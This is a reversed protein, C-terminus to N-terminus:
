WRSASCRASSAAARGASRRSRASSACAGRSRPCPSCAPWRSPPSSRRSRWGSAWAHRGPELREVLSGSVQDALDQATTVTAKPLTAKIEKKVAAISEASDARVYIQNVKDTNDSLKQARALPIYLDSSTSGSPLTVIGVVEFKTGGIKKM